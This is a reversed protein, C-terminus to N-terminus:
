SGEDGGFFLAGCLPTFKKQKSHALQFPPFTFHGPPCKVRRPEVVGRMEVLFFSCMDIIIGTTVVNLETQNKSVLLLTHLINIKRNM